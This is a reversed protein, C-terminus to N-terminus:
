KDLILSNDTCYQEAEKQSKFTSLWYGSNKVSVSFVGPESIQEGADPDIYVPWNFRRVLSLVEEAEHDLSNSESEIEDILSDISILASEKVMMKKGKSQGHIRMVTWFGNAYENEKILVVPNMSKTFIRFDGIRNM